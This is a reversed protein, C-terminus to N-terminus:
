ILQLELAHTVFEVPSQIDLKKIINKRHSNVTHISLNLEDAIKKTSKGKAVLILVEKERQTLNTEQSQGLLLDMFQHSYFKSGKLCQEIAQLIEHPLAHKHLIGTVGIKYFQKLSIEDIYRTTLLISNTWKRKLFRSCVSPSSIAEEYEMILLDPTHQRISDEVQDLNYLNEAIIVESNKQKLINELGLHVLPSKDAVVLKSM